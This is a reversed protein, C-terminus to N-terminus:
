GASPVRILRFRRALRDHWEECHRDWLVDISPKYGHKKTWEKAHESAILLFAFAGWAEPSVAKQLGCAELSFHEPGGSQLWDEERRELPCDVVSKCRLCAEHIEKNQKEYLAILSCVEAMTGSSKISALWEEAASPNMEKFLGLLRDFEDCKQEM